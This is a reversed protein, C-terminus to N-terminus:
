KRHHSITRRPASLRTKLRATTLRGSANGPLISTQIDRFRQLSKEVADSVRDISGGLSEASNAYPGHNPILRGVKRQVFAM